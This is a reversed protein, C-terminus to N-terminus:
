MVEDMDRGNEHIFKDHKTLMKECYKLVNKKSRAFKKNVSAAQTVADMALHFRSTKNRVMMDFPTTTTGEESYGHISVRSAAANGWFLRRIVDPYGHFNFVIPKDATFYKNFEKQNLSLPHREDGVGLSTLESVNVYRVNLEPALEALLRAAEIAELTMYDGASSLVVDPKAWGPHVFKWMGVGVKNQARAEKLTLWQPMPQKGVVVVNIANTRKLCDEFTVLTSNADPPFYVSSFQGHKELVGGIFSPNQHSFGNHEQRWGVSTLVYNLSSVPKRWSIRMAQKLFKAYQDVMSAVIPAFAEYTAFMGHRGTLLYGQLWGQLTHESLIEMVRGDRSMREDHEKLPWMFPRLTAEFMPSMKNSGTEDPCMFRFNKARANKKFIDRLLRSGVETNRDKKEGPVKIKLALKSLSPMSLSKRLNGGIAHKNQGMRVKGTPVFTLVEPLPRGKKDVLEHLKYSELWGKLLELSEPSSKVDQLPIGHARFNGEIRKGGAKKVGSWGKPSRLILMPWIPKFEENSSRAKKQIARISTYAWEMAAAMESHKDHGEVIKVEYGFGNFLNKLEKDSMASYITPGSIKYGNDHLIPLVAGSERPNLFKNSHWAAALPGSEAEGDGVVCTVILNPNDFAAGYATSLSYGLEGGELISGPVNPCVHSPLMGPWSFDHILSGMGKADRRYAPYYEGLTKEAFLSALIAPAGHGPGVVLLMEPKHKSILYNCHAYIFNLGPVTGWHGLIRDKIHEPKLEERLLYNDKLYLEAAAIYDVYRLFRSFWDHINKPLAM